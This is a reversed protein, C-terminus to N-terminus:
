WVFYEAELEEPRTGNARREAALFGIELLEEGREGSLHQISSSGCSVSEEVMGSHPLYPTEDIESM